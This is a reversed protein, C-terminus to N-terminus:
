TIVLKNSSAFILKIRVDERLRASNKFLIFFSYYIGYFGHYCYFLQFLVSYSLVVLNWVVLFLIIEFIIGYITTDNIGERFIYFGLFLNDKITVGREEFNNNM